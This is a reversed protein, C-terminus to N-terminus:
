RGLRNYLQLIEAENEFIFFFFIVNSFLKSYRLRFIVFNHLLNTHKIISLLLVPVSSKHASLEYELKQPLRSNLFSKILSM